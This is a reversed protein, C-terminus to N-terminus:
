AEFITSFAVPCAISVSAASYFRLLYHCFNSSEFFLHSSSRRDRGELVSSPVAATFVESDSKLRPGSVCVHCPGGRVRVVFMCKTFKFKMSAVNQQREIMSSINRTPGCLIWKTQNTDHFSHSIFHTQYLLLHLVCHQATDDHRKSFHRQWVGSDVGKFPAHPCTQWQSM